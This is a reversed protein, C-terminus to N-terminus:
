RDMLACLGFDSCVTWLLARLGHDVLYVPEPLFGCFVCVGKSLWKGFMQDFPAVYLAYDDRPPLQNTAVIYRIAEDATANPEFRMARTSGAFRVDVSLKM